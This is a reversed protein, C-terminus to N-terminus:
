EAADDDGVLRKWARTTEQISSLTVPKGHTFAARKALELEHQAVRVAEEAAEIRRLARATPRRYYDGVSAAGCVFNGNRRLVVPMGRHGRAGGYKPIYMLSGLRYTAYRPTKSLWPVVREVIRPTDREHRKTLEQRRVRSRDAAEFAASLDDAVQDLDPTAM